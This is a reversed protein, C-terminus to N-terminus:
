IANIGIHGPIEVFGLFPLPVKLAILIKVSEERQAGFKPEIYDGPGPREYTGFPIEATKRPPQIIFFANLIANAIVNKQTIRIEIQVLHHRNDRVPLPGPASGDYQRLNFVLIRTVGAGLSIQPM